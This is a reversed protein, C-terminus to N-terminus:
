ALLKQTKDTKEVRATSFACFRDKIAIVEYTGEQSARVVKTHEESVDHRTELVRSKQGKRANTSRTYTFEFPPTGWFEFQIDVEGGEHIDVRSTKGESIRVAPMPHIHKSVDVAARCESGKDTVGTIRFEGATEAVRRFNTTPSKARRESGGFTYFVEFPPTGSLTYSLREGVCYDTRTELAYIAPAEFLHVQVSPGDAANRLQCGRADKVQRIRVQQTGLKLYQTPIQLGYSTSPISAVRYTEAVSSTQHKVEVELSFPAVGTLTIPITDGSAQESKCYKFAQGPKAFVATPKANVTQEVVLPRFNRDSDYLQDGLSTFTYVYTGARGTDMSVMAKTGMTDIEKRAFSNAGQKPKHQITYEALYPATGIKSV